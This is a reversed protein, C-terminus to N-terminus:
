EHWPEQRDSGRQERGGVSFGCDGELFFEPDKKERFEDSGASRIRILGMGDKEKLLGGPTLRIKKM